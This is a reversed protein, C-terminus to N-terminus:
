GGDGIGVTMSFVAVRLQTVFTPTTASAQAEVNEWTDLGM